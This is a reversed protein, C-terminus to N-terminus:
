FGSTTPIEVHRTNDPNCSEKVNQNKDDNRKGRIGKFKILKKGRRSPLYISKALTTIALIDLIKKADDLETILIIPIRLKLYKRLQWLDPRLKGSILTKCEILVYQNNIFLIVDPRGIGDIFLELYCPINKEKCLHYFEAQIVIGRNENTM